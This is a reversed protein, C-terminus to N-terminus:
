ASTPQCLPDRSPHRGQQRLHDAEQGDQSRRLREEPGRLPHRRHREPERQHQQRQQERAPHRRDPRHLRGEPTRQKHTTTVTLDYNPPAPQYKDLAIIVISATSSVYWEMLKDVSTSPDDDFVTSTKYHRTGAYNYDGPAIYKNWNDLWISVDAIGSGNWVSTTFGDRLGRRGRRRPLRRRGRGSPAPPFRCRAPQERRGARRRGQRVLRGDERRRQGHRPERQQHRDGPGKFRVRRGQVALVANGRRQRRHRAQQRGRWRCIRHGRDLGGALTADATLLALTKRKNNTYGM